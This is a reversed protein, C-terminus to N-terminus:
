FNAITEANLDKIIEVALKLASAYDEPAVFCHPTHAYRVPIGIVIAPAGQHLNISAGNTGGGKRVSEQVPIDYKAAIELAYKQFRPNTIMSVDFHRLMPGKRLATQIMYGETFTDDAPCGEFVIAIDPNVKQVAVRSGRLGVEEQSSVTAVVDVALDSGQLEKLTDVLCACGIRCDFGKGLLLQHEEDYEFTVDPVVPSGIGIKYVTEVEEKSTAGVDIVLDSIDLAGRADGANAFHPPKSAVVGTIYNGEKNKIRVRQAAVNSAIWGGVPLFVLTGNPKVAQIIFGVEDSHADIQVVPRKGTNTTPHIYVNRMHDEEVKNKENETYSKIVAVAEDEFGSVGFANSLKGILEISSKKLM